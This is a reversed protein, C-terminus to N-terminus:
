KILEVAPNFFVVYFLISCREIPGVGHHWLNNDFILYIHYPTKTTDNM